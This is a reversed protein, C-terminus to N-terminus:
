QQKQEQGRVVINDQVSIVGPTQRALAVAKKEIETTDVFGGLQVVGQMTEVNVQMAQVQPDAVFAEKVRATITTDDVYQGATERGESLACAGLSAVLLPVAFLKAFSHLKNM